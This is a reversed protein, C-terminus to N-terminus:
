TARIGFSIAGSVYRRTRRTRRSSAIRSPRRAGCPAGRSEVHAAAVAEVARSWPGSRTQPLVDPAVRRVRLVDGRHRAEPSGRNRREHNRTRSRPCPLGWSRRYKKQLEVLAEARKTLRAIQREQEAIQKDRPDVVKPPPGRRKPTLAALEGREVAARWETLHSSYLGERRLLAGLAGRETCTAAEKLIRVKYEATFRRRKAKTSVEVEETETRLPMVNSTLGTEGQMAAETVKLPTVTESVNACLPPRLIRRGVLIAPM